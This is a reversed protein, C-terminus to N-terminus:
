YFLEALKTSKDLFIDKGDIQSVPLIKRIANTIFVGDCNFLENYFIEKQYIEYCDITGLDLLYARFTGKLIPLDGPPTLIKNDKIIFINAFGTELVRNSSDTIIKTSNKYNSFYNLGKIKYIPDNGRFFSAKDLTITEKFLPLDEQIGLISINPENYYIIIKLRFNVKKNAKVLKNIILQLDPPTFNFSFYNLGERIRERHYDLNDGLSNWVGITTFFGEGYNFGHGLPNIKVNKLSTIKNNYFIKM